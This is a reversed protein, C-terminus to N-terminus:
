PYRVVLDPTLEALACAGLLQMAEVLEARMARLLTGVGTAGGTALAWLVPRGVMVASAGLALATAVDLGSTIGGDVLVPVDAGVAAVVEPLARASPVARDLQRGGHNSVIIGDAGADVCRRAEDGRLVGKVLVPLGTLAQLEAVADVTVGPSQELAWRADVGAPLHRGLNVTMWEETGAVRVHELQPKSGLVPTDGTLVLATAGAAAARQAVGRYAAPERTVYVQFWWPAGADHVRELETSSRTSVTLLSGAAGAGHATAREADPHALAQFAMPAVLVPTAVRRGFLEVSTDVHTVDTLVRPRLRYGRWAERAEGRAM